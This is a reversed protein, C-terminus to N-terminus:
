SARKKAERTARAKAKAARAAVAEELLIV